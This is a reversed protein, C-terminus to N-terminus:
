RNTLTFYKNIKKVLHQALVSMVGELLDLLSSTVLDLGLHLSTLLLLYLATMYVHVYKFQNQGLPAPGPSSTM